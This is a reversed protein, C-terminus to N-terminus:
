DVTHTCKLSTRMTVVLAYADVCSHIYQFARRTRATCLFTATALCGIHTFSNTCSHTCSKYRVRFDWSHVLIFASLDSNSVLSNARIHARDIAYNYIFHIQVCAAPPLMQVFTHMILWMITFSIFKYARIHAHDIVYNYIFHIQVCAAPPLTQVFAHMIPQTLLFNTLLVLNLTWLEVSV